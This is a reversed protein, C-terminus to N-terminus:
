EQGRLSIKVANGLLKAAETMLEWRCERFMGQLTLLLGLTANRGKLSQLESPGRLSGAKRLFGRMDNFIERDGQPKLGPDVKGDLAFGYSWVVLCAFYLVWPRNLLHDSAASYVPVGTTSSLVSITSGGVSLTRSGPTSPSYGPDTVDTREELLLVKGLFQLAFFTADRAQATQAWAEMREKTTKADKPTIARGLLRRAGAYIQLDVVDVHMAIHALHHLVIRSEFINEHEIDTTPFFPTYQQPRLKDLYTDFDRKWHDFAKTLTARWKERTGLTRSTGSVISIQIDRQQLHWAVSLLGAMLINRGFANTHVVKGNLTDRLGQIFLPPTTMSHQNLSQQISFVKNASEASWLTEDCPLQLQMEQIVMVASHGFMTAHTADIVFAAFAVRKTAEQMIWRNWAEDSANGTGSGPQGSFSISNDSSSSKADRGSQPSDFAGSRGTLSSGRRMLTLTTAHHIHAREHLRRDSYMKEFTELLLLAQFIWLKAPPRFDEQDFILWRLNRAVMTAMDMSAAALEKDAKPDVRSAGIVIICLLLIDPTKEASFTPRHLIPMQPHFHTWYMSIFTQMMSLSLPHREDDSSISNSIGDQFQAQFEAFTDLVFLIQQRKNDSLLSEQPPSPPAITSIQMPHTSIAPAFSFPDQGFGQIPNGYPDQSMTPMGWQTAGPGLQGNAQSDTAMLMELFEGSMGALHNWQPSRGVTEGFVPITFMSAMPDIDMSTTMPINVADLSMTTAIQTAYHGATTVAATVNPYVNQPMSFQQPYSQQPAFQQQQGPASIPTSPVQAVTTGINSGFQNQTNNTSHNHNHAYPSQLSLGHMPQTPTTVTQLIPRSFGPKSSTNLNNANPSKGGGPYLHPIDAVSARRQEPASDASIRRFKAGNEPGTEPPAFHGGSALMATPASSAPSEPSLSHNNMDNESKVHMSTRELNDKRQLHSGRNTHRERHRTCLDQRVFSRKCAPFDCHYIQKPQHNLQHRYLHEARSYSKGCGPHDCEFKKDLGKRSRRRKRTTGNGQAGTDDGGNDSAGDDADERSSPDRGRREEDDGLDQSQQFQQSTPPQLSQQQYQPPPQQQQPTGPPYASQSPPNQM